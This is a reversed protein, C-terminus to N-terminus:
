HFLHHHLVLSAPRTAQSGSCRGATCGATVCADARQWEGRSTQATDVHRAPLDADWFCLTLWDVELSSAPKLGAKQGREQSLFCVDSLM